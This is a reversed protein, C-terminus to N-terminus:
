VFFSIGLIGVLAIIIGCIQQKSIKDKFVVASTGIFLVPAAGALPSVVSALGQSVGLNLAIDGSRILIASVFTALLVKLNRPVSLQSKEKIIKRALYLALPLTLFSIYNPLFWGYQNSFIRFFTFYISFISTAALAYRIGVDFKYKSKNLESLNVSCLIVGLFIMIIWLIQSKNIPDNFILTSLILVIAPFSQIIIGVVPASAQKFGENVFFNALVYLTGVLINLLLFPLRVNSMDQWVFPLVITSLLIGFLFQYFTTLYSGIKRSAYVGFIDGTGWGFLPILALLLQEFPM